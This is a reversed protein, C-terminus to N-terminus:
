DKCNKSSNEARKADLDMEHLLVFFDLLPQIEERSIESLPKSPQKASVTM